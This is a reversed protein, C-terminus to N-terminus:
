KGGVTRADLDAGINKGQFGKGRLASDPRLTFDRAASNAFGLQRLSAPYM